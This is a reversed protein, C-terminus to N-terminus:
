SVERRSIKDDGNADPQKFEAYDQQLSASPSVMSLDVPIGAESMANQQKLLLIFIPSPTHTHIYTKSHKHAYFGYHCAKFDHCSLLRSCTLAALLFFSEVM